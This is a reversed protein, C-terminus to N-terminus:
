RGEAGKPDSSFAVGVGVRESWQGPQHRGHQKVPWRGSVEGEEVRVEVFRAPGNDGGGVRGVM